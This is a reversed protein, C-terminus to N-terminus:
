DMISHHLSWERSDAQHHSLFDALTNEVGPCHKALISIGRPLMWNYFLRTEMNLSPSIGGGRQKNLYAVTTPNDSEVLVSRNLLHSELGKFTLWVARLELINIHLATESQSCFGQLLVRPM